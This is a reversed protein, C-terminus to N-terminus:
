KWSLATWDSPAPLQGHGADVCRSKSIYKEQHEKNTTPINKESGRGGRSKGSLLMMAPPATMELCATFSFFPWAHHGRKHSCQSCIDNNSKSPCRWSRMAGSGTSKHFTRSFSSAPSFNFVLMCHAYRWFVGNQKKKPPHNLSSKHPYTIYINMNKSSIWTNLM